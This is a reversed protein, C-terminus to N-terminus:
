ARAAFIWIALSLRKRLKSNFYSFAVPSSLGILGIIESLKASGSHVIKKVIVLSGYDDARTWNSRTADPELAVIRGTKRASAEIIRRMNCGVDITSHSRTASLLLNIMDQHATKHSGPESGMLSSVMASSAAKTFHNAKYM